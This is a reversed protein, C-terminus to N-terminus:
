DMSTPSHNPAFPNPLSRAPFLEGAASALMLGISRDRPFPLLVITNDVIRGFSTLFAECIGALPPNSADILTTPLPHHYIDPPLWAECSRLIGETAARTSCRARRPSEVAQFWLTRLELILGSAAFRVTSLQISSRCERLHVMSPAPLAWLPWKQHSRGEPHTETVQTELLAQPYSFTGEWPGLPGWGLTYRLLVCM